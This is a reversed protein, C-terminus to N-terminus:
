ADGDLAAAVATEADNWRNAQGIIQFQKWYLKGLHVVMM